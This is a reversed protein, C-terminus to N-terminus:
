FSSRLVFSSVNIEPIEPLAIIATYLICCRWDPSTKRQGFQRDTLNKGAPFHVGGGDSCISPSLRNRHLSFTRIATEAVRGVNGVPFALFPLTFLHRAIYTSSWIQVLADTTFAVLRL